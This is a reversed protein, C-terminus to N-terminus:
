SDRPLIQHDRGLHAESSTAIRQDSGVTASERPSVDQPGDVLTELPHVKIVDVEVLDMAPVVGRGDLTRM